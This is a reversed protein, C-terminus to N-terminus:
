DAVILEPWRARASAATRPFGNTPRLPNRRLTM